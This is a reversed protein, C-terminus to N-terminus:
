SIINLWALRAKLRFPIEVNEKIEEYRVKEGNKYKEYLEYAYRETSRIVYCENPADPLFAFTGDDQVSLYAVREETQLCFSEGSFGSKLYYNMRKDSNAENVAMIIEDDSVRMQEQSEMEKQEEAMKQVGGFGLDYNGLRFGHVSSSASAVTLSLMLFALFLTKKM